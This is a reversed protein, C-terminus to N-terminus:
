CRLALEPSVYRLEVAGTAMDSLRSTGADRDAVLVWPALVEKVAMLDDMM